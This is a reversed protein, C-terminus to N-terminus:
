AKKASGNAVSQHKKQRELEEFLQKIDDLARIIENAFRSSNQLVLVLGNEYHMLDSM